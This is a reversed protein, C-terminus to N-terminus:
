PAPPLSEAQDPPPVSISSPAGQGGERLTRSVCGKRQNGKMSPKVIMLDAMRFWFLLRMQLIVLVCTRNGGSPRIERQLFKVGAETVISLTLQGRLWLGDGAGLDPSWTATGSSLKQESAGTWCRFSKLDSCELRCDPSVARVTTGLLAKNHSLCLGHCRIPPLPGSQPWHGPPCSSPLSQATHHTSNVPSPTQNAPHTPSFPVTVYAVFSVTEM